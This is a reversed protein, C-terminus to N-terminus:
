GGSSGFGRTGRVSTPLEEVESWGILPSVHPMLILQALRQGVDIRVIERTMNWVGFFMEGRYGSDIIGEQIALGKRSSSSRGVIRCWLSSPLAIFVDTNIERCTSPLILSERSAYLDFGADGDYARSPQQPQAGDSRNLKFRISTVPDCVSCGRELNHPCTSM